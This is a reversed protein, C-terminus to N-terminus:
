KDILRWGDHDELGEELDKVMVGAPFVVAEEGVGMERGGLRPQIHKYYRDKCQDPTRRSGMHHAIDIWSIPFIDHGGNAKTLMELKRDEEEKWPGKNIGILM